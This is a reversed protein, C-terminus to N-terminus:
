PCNKNSYPIVLIPGAVTQSGSWKGAVEEMVEGARVQREEMLSTIWSSPILLVLVLFGISLLKISVSEKIWHNFRDIISMTNQTEM